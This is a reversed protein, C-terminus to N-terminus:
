KCGFQNELSQEERDGLKLERKFGFECCRGNVKSYEFKPFLEVEVKLM